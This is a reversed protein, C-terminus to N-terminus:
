NDDRTVDADGSGVEGSRLTGAAKFSEDRKNPASSDAILHIHHSLGSVDRPIARHSTIKGIRFM